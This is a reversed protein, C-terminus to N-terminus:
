EGEIQYTTSKVHIWIRGHRVHRILGPTVHFKRALAVGSGHRKPTALIERVQSETLKHNGHTEGRSQTKHKIRDAANEKQTGWALNWTANNGKNGDLHRCVSDTSPKPGIFARLVEKHLYRFSPCKPTETPCQAGFYGNSVPTVVRRHPLSRGNPNYHVFFGDMHVYNYKVDLLQKLAGNAIWREVDEIALRDM